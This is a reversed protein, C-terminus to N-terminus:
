PGPSLAPPNTPSAIPPPPEEALPAQPNNGNGGLAALGGLGGLLWFARRRYETGAPSPGVGTALAVDNNLMAQVESKPTAGDAKVHAIGDEVKVSKISGSSLELNAKLQDAVYVPDANPDIQLDLVFSGAHDSLATGVIIADAHAHAAFLLLMPVLLIGLLRTKM